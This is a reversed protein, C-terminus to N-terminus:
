QEYLPKITTRADRRCMQSAPKKGSRKLIVADFLRFAVFFTCGDKFLHPLEGRYQPRVYTLERPDVFRVEDAAEFSTGRSSFAWTDPRPCLGAVVPNQCTYEVLNSWHECSRIAHDFSEREWVEGSRQTMKNIQHATFSKWSHLVDKLEFGEIPTVVAHVHNPMICWASLYYRSREFYLLSSQVLAAISPDRLICSGSTLPPEHHELMERLADNKM